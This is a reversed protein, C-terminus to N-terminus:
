RALSGISDCTSVANESVRAFMRRGASSQGIELAPRGGERAASASDFHGFDLTFGQGGYPEMAAGALASVSGM